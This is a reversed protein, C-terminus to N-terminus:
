PRHVQPAPSALLGLTRARDVAECRRHVGLKAYIHRLHTTVTHVSLYLHGAIEPATLHSTLYRLVRTESDTLPEPPAAEPPVAGRPRALEDPESLCLQLHLQLPRFEAQRGLVVHIYVGDFAEDVPDCVVVCTVDDADGIVKAKM